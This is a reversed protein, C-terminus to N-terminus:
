RVWTCGEVDATTARKFTRLEVRTTTLGTGGAAVRVPTEGVRDYSIAQAFLQCQAGQDTSPRDITVTVAITTDSTVEFADVRATVTGIAAHGGAWVLWASGLLALAVAIPVWPARRPRAPYRRALRTAVDDPNAPDTVTDM